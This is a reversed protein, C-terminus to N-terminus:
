HNRFVITGMTKFNVGRFALIHSFLLCVGALGLLTGFEVSASKIFIMHCISKLLMGTSM